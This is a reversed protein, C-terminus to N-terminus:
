EKIFKGKYLNDGDKVELIYMGTEFDDVDIFSSNIVKEVVQQGTIDYIRIVANQFDKSLNLVNKVPNPYSYLNLSKEKESIDSPVEFPTDEVYAYDEGVANLDHGNGTADTLVTDEGEKNCKYYMLLGESAPDIEQEMNDMIDEETRAVNWIRIEDMIGIVTRAPEAGLGAGVRINDGLPLEALEYSEDVATEVGNIYFRSQAETVSMVVAVHQWEDITVINDAGEYTWQENWEYSTTLNEDVTRFILAKSGGGEANRFDVLATFDDVTVTGDFKVWGEITVDSVLLESMGDKYFSTGDTTIQLAYNQANVMYSMMCTIATLLLIKKMIITKLNIFLITNLFQKFENYKEKFNM